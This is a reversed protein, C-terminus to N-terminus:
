VGSLGAGDPHFHHMATPYSPPAFAPKIYCHVTRVKMAMRVTLHIYYKFYVNFFVPQFICASGNMAISFTPSIDHSIIILQTPEAPYQETQSTSGDSM